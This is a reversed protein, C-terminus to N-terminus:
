AHTTSLEAGPMDAIAAATRWGTVPPTTPTILTAPGLTRRVSARMCASAGTICAAAASSESAQLADSYKVAALRECRARGACRHLCLM